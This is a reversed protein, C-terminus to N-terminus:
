QVYLLELLPLRSPTNTLARTVLTSGAVRFVTYVTKGELAADTARPDKITAIVEVGGGGGVYGRYASTSM